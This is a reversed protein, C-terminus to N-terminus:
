PRIRRGTEPDELTTSFRDRIFADQQATLFPQPSRPRPSSSQARDELVAEQALTGTGIGIGIDETTVAKM